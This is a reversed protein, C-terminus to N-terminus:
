ILDQLYFESNNVQLDLIDERSSQMIKDIYEEIEESKIEIQKMANKRAQSDEYLDDYLAISYLKILNLPTKMDHSLSLLMKKKEELLELQRKKSIDLEDKLQSMGWMFQGFYKNKEEKIEGQFHGQSFELPLDTLHQFPLLIKRKLVSLVVLIFSELVSLSIFLIMFLKRTDAQPLIYSFKIYGQLQQNQYYPLIQTHVDNSELYFDNIIEQNTQTYKIFEIKQIYEYKDLDITNIQQIDKIEKIIRNSEIRYAHDDKIQIHNFVVIGGISVLILYFVISLVILQNYKKM